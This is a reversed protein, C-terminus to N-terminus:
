WGAAPHHYNEQSFEGGANPGFGVTPIPATLKVTSDSDFM